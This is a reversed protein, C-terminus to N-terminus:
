ASSTRTRSTPAATRPTSANCTSIAADSAPHRATANSRAASASTVTPPLPVHNPSKDPQRTQLNAPPSPLPPSLSPPHKNTRPHICDIHLCGDCRSTPVSLVFSVMCDIHVVHFCSPDAFFCVCGVFVGGCWWLV